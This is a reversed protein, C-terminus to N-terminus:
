SDSDLPDKNLHADPDRLKGEVITEYLTEFHRNEELLTGYNSKYMTKAMRSVDKKEIGYTQSTDAVTEKISDKHTDINKMHETIIVLMAKFKKRQEPDAMINGKSEKEKKEFKAM